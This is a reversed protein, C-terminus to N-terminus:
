QIYGLARLERKTAETLPAPTSGGQTGRVRWLLLYPPEPRQEPVGWAKQGVHGTRLSFPLNGPNKLADGVFTRGPAPEGDIRFDFTVPLAPPADVKFALTLRAGPDFNELVLKKGSCEVRPVADTPLLHGAGDMLRYLYMNGALPGSEATIRIDFRRNARDSAMELYWSDTLAFLTRLLIESLSRYADPKEGVFDHQEGPDQEINFFAEKNTEFDCIIKWPYGTISAKATGHLIGESYALSPPFLSGEGSAVTGHGTILPLLNVGEFQTQTKVGLLGLVTPMIDITRVQQAIRRGKPEGKACSFVLPVRIVEGFMAHGHGFGQHEFFEEGHDAMLVILTKKLLGREGVGALLNGIAQDTFAIEGDYLARIHNWDEPTATRLQEFNVGVVDPFAKRLFFARGIRGEYGPDYLTDYPAPPEYPEHPDFYHLFLLFPRGKHADIWALGERTTGDALRPESGPPDYSDFGRNLGMEPSLVSSNVVAGTAYGQEGLITALTPVDDRIRSLSSTVGHQHPYLSTFLSAFSPLTWSSQSITNLFLTGGAALDDINPSTNRQYGYCGLHDPRLTDVGIIIVNTPRDARGCCLGLAISMVAPLVLQRVTMGKMMGSLNYGTTGGRCLLEHADRTIRAGESV